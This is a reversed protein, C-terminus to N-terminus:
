ALLRIHSLDVYVHSQAKSWQAKDTALSKHTYNVWIRWSQKVPLAAIIHCLTAGTGSFCDQFYPYYQCTCFWLLYVIFHLSYAYNKSMSDMMFGAWEMYWKYHLAFVPRVYSLLPKFHQHCCCYDSLKGRSLSNISYPKYPGLYCPENPWCPAWRPGVPGLHAWTPEM